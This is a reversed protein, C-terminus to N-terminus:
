VYYLDLLNFKLENKFDIEIKNAIEHTIKTFSLPQRRVVKLKTYENLINLTTLNTRSLKNVM